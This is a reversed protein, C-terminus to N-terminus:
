RVGIITQQTKLNDIERQAREVGADLDAKRQAVMAIRKEQLLELNAIHRRLKSQSTTLTQPQIM